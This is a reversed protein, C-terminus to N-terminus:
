RRKRGQIGDIGAHIGADSATAKPSRKEKMPNVHHRGNRGWARQARRTMRKRAKAPWM